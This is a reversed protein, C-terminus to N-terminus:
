PWHRCHHWAFLGSLRRYQRFHGCFDCSFAQLAPAVWLHRQGGLTSAAARGTLDTMRQLPSIPP